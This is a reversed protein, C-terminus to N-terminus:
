AIRPRLSPVRRVRGVARLFLHWEGYGINQNHTPTSEVGNAISYFLRAQLLRSLFPELGFRM